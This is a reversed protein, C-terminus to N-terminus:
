EVVNVMVPMSTAEGAESVMVRPPLAVSVSAGFASTGAPCLRWTASVSGAPMLALGGVSENAAPSAAFVIVKVAAGDAGAPADLTASLGKLPAPLAKQDMTGSLM